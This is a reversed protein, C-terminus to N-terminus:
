IWVNNMSGILVNNKLRKHHSRTNKVSEVLM